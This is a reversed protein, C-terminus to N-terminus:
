QFLFQRWVSALDTSAFGITDYNKEIEDGADDDDDNDFHLM